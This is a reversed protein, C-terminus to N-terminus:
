TYGTRASGGWAAGSSAGPEQPPVWERQMSQGKGPSDRGVIGLASAFAAANGGGASFGGMPQQWLKPGGGALFQQQVAPPLTQQQQRQQRKLRARVAMKQQFHFFELKTVHGDGIEDCDQLLRKGMAEVHDEHVGLKRAQAERRESAKACPQSLKQQVPHAKPFFRVLDMFEELEVTGGHDEDMSDFNIDAMREELEELTPEPVADGTLFPQSPRNTSAAAPQQQQQQQLIQQQQQYLQQQQQYVPQQLQPQPQPQRLGAAISSRAAMFESVTVHGDRDTDARQMLDRGVLAAQERTMGM